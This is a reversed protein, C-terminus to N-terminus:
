CQMCSLINARNFARAHADFWKKAMPIRARVMSGKPKTIADPLHSHTVATVSRRKNKSQMKHIDHAKQGRHQDAGAKDKRVEADHTLTELEGEVDTDAMDDVPSAM